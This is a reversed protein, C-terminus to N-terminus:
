ALIREVERAAALLEGDAFPKAILQLGIPMGNSHKGCPLSLAPEGIFNLSRVLRTTALRTDETDNGIQVTSQGVPPATIPTTPTILFDVTNWLADFERRFLTRLRQANVYEHGAFMRGQQILAWVDAGFRHPQTEESYLAAVEVGQVVRALTNAENLDPIAVETVVGGAQEIRDSARHVADSVERDVREFFFNKPLGFRLDKVTNAFGNGRAMTDLGNMVHMALACDDVCSGIPGVHDLSWALPLVGDSPVTGYTPKFGVVGCYSAPIRVSGGTDTGLCMPLLGAAVAAASGGSSGGPICTVNQPNVVAGFHPNASTIGFALEHLNTKGVSIAGAERLAIVVAADSTPVFNRYLLSGATTRVGATCFLDKYAIPIGHLPGRDCGEAFERDREAAEALAQERTVTIFAKFDDRTEVRNLTDQILELCSLERSRLSRGIEAITM